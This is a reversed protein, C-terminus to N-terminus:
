VRPPAFDRLSTIKAKPSEGQAPEMGPLFPYNESPTVRARASPSLGFSQLFKDLQEAAKNKGVWHPSYTFSGNPTPLQFGDGGAWEAGANKPDAEWAARKEASRKIDAQLREEHWVWWAYAQCYLALAARDIKAILGLEELLPSIRKWEKRAAPLLHQPCGPIEITPQVGDILDAIAKKSANGQLRHVTAPM